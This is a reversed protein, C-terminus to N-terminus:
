GGAVLAAAARRFQNRRIRFLVMVMAAVIFMAVILIEIVPLYSGYIKELESLVSIGLGGCAVDVSTLVGLIKGYSQGAFFEAIVLQILAFTGGFGLGFLAAYGYLAWLDDASSLRLIILGVLLLGVVICMILIKDYRDSLHGFLIKGIIAFWFIASFIL